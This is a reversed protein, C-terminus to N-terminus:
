TRPHCGLPVYYPIGTLDNIGVYVDTEFVSKINAYTIVKNPSGDAFIEGDKILVVRNCFTSALNIDHVVSVVTIHDERNKKKLLNYLEVQYKIDLFVTPEDLLLVQPEQALARAVIVRQREGGSVEHISRNCFKLVDMERMVDKVVDLDQKSEFGFFPVFMSRGMLVIESVSFSFPMVSNQPVVAVIRARQYDSLEGAEIGQMQVSGIDPKLTGALLKILTSKGSGNPGLVGIFEGEIINLCVDRLVPEGKDYAFTINKARLM